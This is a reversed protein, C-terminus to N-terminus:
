FQLGSIKSVDKEDMVKRVGRKMFNKTQEKHSGSIGFMPANDGDGIMIQVGCCSLPKTRFFTNDAQPNIVYGTASPHTFNYSSQVVVPAQM